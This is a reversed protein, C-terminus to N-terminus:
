SIISVKEAIVECNYYTKGNSEFAGSQLRGRIAVVTGPTCAAACEEAIGRWLTVRFLDKTVSGDENRFNRETEVIMHAITLGKSTTTLEPLQSVKGVLVCDTMM